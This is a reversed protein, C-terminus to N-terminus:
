EWQSGQVVPYQTAADATLSGLGDVPPFVKDIRRDAIGMVRIDGSNADLSFGGLDDLVFGQRWGGCLCSKENLIRTV